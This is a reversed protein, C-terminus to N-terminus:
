LNTAHPRAKRIRERREYEALMHRQLALRAAIIGEEDVTLSRQDLEKFLDDSRGASASRRLVTRCPGPVTSQLPPFPALTCLHPDIVPQYVPLEVSVCWCSCGFAGRHELLSAARLVYATCAILGCRKTDIQQLGAAFM